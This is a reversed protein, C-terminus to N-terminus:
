SALFAAPDVPVGDIDVQFHVHPGTALGTAGVYGVLQGAVVVDGTRVAFASLHCYLVRVHGDMWVEVFNGAAAPDYGTAVTGSTAAHVETGLPAALDIGTHTHHSPCSLDFPELQLATCGFPQSVVAGVVVTSVPLKAHSPVQTAGVLFVAIVGGAWALLRIM